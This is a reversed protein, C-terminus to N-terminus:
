LTSSRGKTVSLEELWGVKRIFGVVRAAIEALSPENAAIVCSARRFGANDYRKLAMRNVHPAARNFFDLLPFVPDKPTALANLRGMFDDISLYAFRFGCQSEIHRVVDTISYYTSATLHFTQNGDNRGAAIAVISKAVHDVPLLSLQNTADVAIGYRIMFAILRAAVDDCDGVGEESVSVLSPRFIAVRLGRAGASRVLTEAVWKTQAYGFTLGSMQSNHDTELLVRRRTWGFVFTTSVHCFQKPAGGAALALLRATGEVNAPRMADYSKVYDVLAGNHFIHYRTDALHALQHQALGLRELSLDSAWTTLRETLGARVARPYLGASELAAVVRQHAHGCDRGRALVTIPLGTQELLETLMFPGLFGTAGTLLAAEADGPREERTPRMPALVADAAMQRRERNRTKQAASVIVNLARRAAWADGEALADVVRLVDACRAEQLSPADLPALYSSTKSLQGELEIQLQVLRLSDIGTESVTRMLVSTDRRCLATLWDIAPTMRAGGRKSCYEAIPSARGNRVNELTQRRALKGSTTRRITRAAVVLIVDVHLGTERSVRESMRELESADRADHEVILVVCGDDEQVAVARRAGSAAEIDQPHYNQGRQIIVESRRGVVFLEGQYVFGLDGTALRSVPHSVDTRNWYGHTVSAGSLHIEGVAGDDCARGGSMVELGVGPLPRGCSALAIGGEAVIRASGAALRTRDFQHAVSSGSTAALTAEALGYAAVLTEARLGCRAFRARFADCVSPRVPEAGNMLVRLASLDVGDLEEDTIAGDRLCYEYAFNPAASFTASHQSLMQLWRAPRRLFDSPACGHSAGGMVIPFLGFGILGMDHFQPLWSVGVPAHDLLARANAIINAHSVIVGKPASTSGSTYQLLAWEHPSDFPLADTSLGVDTLIMNVASPLVSREVAQGALALACTPTCDACIATIRAQTAPSRWGFVSAVPAVVPIAGLRTCAVLAVLLATGPPHLLLVRDGRNIGLGRLTFALIASNNAVDEYRHYSACAGDSFSYLPATPQRHAWEDLCSGISNM